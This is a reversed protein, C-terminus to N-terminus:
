LGNRSVSRVFVKVENKTASKVVVEFEGGFKILNIFKAALDDPFRGIYSDNLTYVNVRHTHASLKLMDGCDLSTLNSVEGLNILNVIRTRTPEEIFAKSSIVQPIPNLINKKGRVSLGQKYSKWKLMCKEAISNSPDIKLVKGSAAKAKVIDGKEAYARAIRNHADVDQPNIKIIESNVLIAKEWDCSLAARIAEQALDSEM